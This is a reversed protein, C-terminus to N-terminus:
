AVQRTHHPICPPEPDLATSDPKMELQASTSQAIEFEQRSMMTRRSKDCHDQPSEPSGDLLDLSRVHKIPFM